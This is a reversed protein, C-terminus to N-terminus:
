PRRCWTDLCPRGAGKGAEYDEHIERLTLVHPYIAVEDWAGTLFSKSSYTGLRVPGARDAKPTRTVPNMVHWWM